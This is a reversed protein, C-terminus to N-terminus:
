KFTLYFYFLEFLYLMEVERNKVRQQPTQFTVRTIFSPSSYRENHCCVSLEAEPEVDSWRWTWTSVRGTPLCPTVTTTLGTGAPSHAWRSLRCTDCQTNRKRDSPNSLWGYPGSTTQVSSPWGSPRRRSRSRRDDPERLQNWHASSSVSEVSPMLYCTPRPPSQQVDSLLVSVLSRRCKQKRGNQKNSKQREAAAVRGESSVTTTWVASTSATQVWIIM